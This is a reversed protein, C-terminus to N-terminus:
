TEKGVFVLPGIKLGTFHKMVGPINEPQASLIIHIKGFGLFLLRSRVTESSKCVICNCTGNGVLKERIQFPGWSIKMTWNVFSANYEGSNKIIAKIGLSMKQPTVDIEPPKILFLKATTHSITVRAPTTSNDKINLTINYLGIEEYFHHPYYATKSTNGDGFDWLWDLGLPGAGTVNGHFRVGTPSYDYQMPWWWEYPGGADCSFPLTGNGLITIDDISFMQEDQQEITNSYYQFAIKVNPQGAYATLDIADNKPLISDYWIWDHFFRGVNDFSWVPNWTIGDDTSVSINMEIYRKYITCYYCTYWYFKLVVQNYKSLNLSPTILWENQLTTATARHVTASPSSVPYTPITTDIHWTQTPNTQILTWPQGTDSIPPMNEDTFNEYLIEVYSPPAATPKNTTNTTPTNQTAAATTTMATLTACFLVIVLLLTSITKLFSKKKEYKKM